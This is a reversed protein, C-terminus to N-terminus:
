CSGRRTHQRESRPRRAAAPSPPQPTPRRAAALAASLDLAGDYLARGLVVGSAGARALRQVDAVSSIGGAAILAVGPAAARLRALAEANGGALTGDREVDTYILTQVGESALRRAFTEADEDVSARWGQIVVRGARADVAVAIREGWAALCAGLLAPDAAAMTGLIVRAAGADLAARV